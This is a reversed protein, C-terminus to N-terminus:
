QINELRKQLEETPISDAPESIQRLVGYDSLHEQREQGYGFSSIQRSWVDVVMELEIPQAESYASPDVEDLQKLGTAQAFKKLTGVWGEPSVTVKYTYVPRGDTIEQKVSSQDFQYVNNERVFDMVERRQSATLNGMPVVGLTSEGYLEGNTQSSDAAATTKSWINLVEGYDPVDQGQPDSEISTYRVYDAQPTGITETAVVTGDAEGSIETDSRIIHEPGLSMEATQELVQGQGSQVVQRTVNSTQMSNDLAAYFTSNVGSRVIHWWSWIVAILIVVGAVAIFAALKNQKILTM